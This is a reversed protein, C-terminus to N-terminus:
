IIPFYELIIPALTFVVQISHGVPLYELLSPSDSHEIQKSDNCVGKISM